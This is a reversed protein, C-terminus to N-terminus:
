RFKRIFIDIYLLEDGIRSNVKREPLASEELTLAVPTKQAFASRCRCTNKARFCLPLLLVLNSVFANDCFM